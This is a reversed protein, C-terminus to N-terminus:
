VLVDGDRRRAVEVRGRLEGALRVAAGVRLQVADLVRDQAEADGVARARSPATTGIKMLRASVLSGSVMAPSPLWNRLNTYTSSRASPMTRPSFGHAFFRM